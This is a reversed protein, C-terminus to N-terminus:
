TYWVQWKATKMLSLNQFSKTGATTSLFPQSKKHIYARLKKTLTEPPPPTLLYEIEPCPNGVIEEYPKGLFDVAAKNCKIIKGNPDTLVIPTTLADFIRHWESICAKLAVVKANEFSEVLTLLILKQARKSVKYPKAILRMSMFNQQNTIIMTDFTLKKNKRYVESLFDSFQKQKQSVIFSTINKGSLKHQKEKFLVHAERNAYVILGNREILLMPVPFFKLVEADKLVNKNTKLDKKENM